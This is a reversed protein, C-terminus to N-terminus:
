KVSYGAINHLEAYEVVQVSVVKRKIFIVFRPKFEDLGVILRTKVGVVHGLMM